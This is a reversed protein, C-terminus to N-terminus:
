LTTAAWALSSNNRSAASSLRQQYRPFVVPSQYGLVPVSIGLQTALLFSKAKPLLRESAPLYKMHLPSTGEHMMAKGAPSLKEETQWM